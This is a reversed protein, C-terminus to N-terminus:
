IGGNRAKSVDGFGRESAAVTIEAFARVQATLNNAMDNVNCTIEKWLGQVDRVDAQGGLRGEIGVERAVRAVENGFLNLRRIMRNITEALDRIEGATKPLIVSLRM